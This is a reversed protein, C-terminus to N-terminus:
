DRGIGEAICLFMEPHLCRRSWTYAMDWQDTGLRWQGLWSCPSRQRSSHSCHPWSRCLTHPPFLWYCLCRRPLPWSDLRCGRCIDSRPLGSLSYRSCRLCVPWLQHLLIYLSGGPCIYHCASYPTCPSDLKQSDTDALRPAVFSSSSLCM